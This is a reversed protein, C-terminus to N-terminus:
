DKETLAPSEDHSAYDPMGLDPRGTIVIRRLAQDSILALFAPDNIAGAGGNEGHCLACTQAFVKAGAEKSPSAGGELKADAVRYVPLPKTHTVKGSWEKRMGRILAEVQQLTLPGGQEQSFAPMPTDPRGYEIVRHLEFDPVIALFLADNLPPAPGLKGEPGHCGRCHLTYLEKFDE